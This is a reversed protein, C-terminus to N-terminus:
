AVRRWLSPLFPRNAEDLTVCSVTFTKGRELDLLRYESGEDTNAMGVVLHLHEVDLLSASWVQGVRDTNM